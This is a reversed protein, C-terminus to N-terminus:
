KLLNKWLILSFVIKEIFKSLSSKLPFCLAEKFLVYIVPSVKFERFFQISKLIASNSTM